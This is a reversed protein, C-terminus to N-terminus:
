RRIRPFSRFLGRLSGSRRDAAAGLHALGFTDEITRLVGYHDVVAGGSRGRAVDLGAVVTAIRGGRAAGGCCAADTSGEDFTLVLYGHPGLGQLLRPVLQSLFRDGTAVSCDHMDHCLDPAIFSFAPLQGHGLDADLASFSVRRRCDISSWYAFPDHKKAYHAATVGRFCSGPLGEEYAKWSLGAQELQDALNPGSVRCTGCDSTIGHTSGSVLALYNPLSPHTLAYSRSASAYSHVLSNLYPADPSGVVAGQEKNELVMLVVHSSASPRTQPPVASSGCATLLAAAAAIAVVARV